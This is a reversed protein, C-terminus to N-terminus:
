RADYAADDPNDWIAAFAPASAAAAARILAREQERLRIFDVFDEIEAIREPPLAAIKEMLTKTDSPM